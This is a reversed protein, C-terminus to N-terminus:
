NLSGYIHPFLEGAEAREYRLAPELKEIDIVLLVLGAQGRFRQNAVWVVQERTSCHVFGETDLTDGRYYGERQAELWAARQTIHFINEAMNAELNPRDDEFACYITHERHESMM